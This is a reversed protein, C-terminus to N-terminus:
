WRHEYSLTVNREDGKFGRYNQGQNQISLTYKKNLLNNVQLRWTNNGREYTLNADYVTVGPLVITNKENTRQGTYRMGLGFSLEGDKYKKIDKELM